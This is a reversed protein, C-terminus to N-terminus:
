FSKSKSQAKSLIHNDTIQLKIINRSLMPELAGREATFTRCTSLSVPSKPTTHEAHANDLPHLHILYGLKLAEFFLM